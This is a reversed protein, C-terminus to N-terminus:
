NGTVALGPATLIGAAGVGPGDVVACHSFGSPMAQKLGACGVPDGAVGLAQDVHGQLRKFRPM